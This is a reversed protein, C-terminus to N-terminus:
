AEERVAEAALRNRRERRVLNIFNILFVLGNLTLIILIGSRTELGMLYGSITSISILFCSFCSGMFLFIAYIRNVELKEIIRQSTMVLASYSNVIVLPVAFSLGILILLFRDLNMFMEREYIFLFMFSACSSAVLSLVVVGSFARINQM